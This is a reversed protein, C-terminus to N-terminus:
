AAVARTRRGLVTPDVGIRRRVAMVLGINWMATSTATAIAAGTAGLPPILVANLAVNAAAGLAVGGCATRELDHCNLLVVVPGCALNVVQGIWLGILAPAGAAFGSGLLALVPAAVGVVVPLALAAPIALLRASTMAIRRLETDDGDAAARALSPAIVTGVAAMVLGLTLAVRSAAHYVGAAEAEALTGLMLVDANAMVAHLLAIGLLPAVAALWTPLSEPVASPRVSTPEGARVQWAAVLVAAVVAAMFVGAATTGSPPLGVAMAVVVVAALGGPRVLADAVQGAIVRGRAQLWAGLVRLLALPGAAVAGLAVFDGPLGRDTAITGAALVAVVAIGAGAAGVAVLSRRLLAGRAGANGDRDIAAVRRLLHQPLGLQALVAFLGASALVTAFRGYADPGLWRAAVALALLMLASQAAKMAAVLGGRGAWRTIAPSPFWGPHQRGVAYRSWM